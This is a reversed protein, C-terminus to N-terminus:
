RLARYPRVHKMALHNAVCAHAMWCFCAVILQELDSLLANGAIARNCFAQWSCFSSGLSARLTQSLWVPPFDTFSPVSSSRPNQKWSSDRLELRSWKGSVGRSGLSVINSCARWLQADLLSSWIRSTLATGAAQAPIGGRSFAGTMGGLVKSVPRIVGMTYPPQNQDIVCSWDSCRSLLLRPHYSSPMRGTSGSGNSGSISPGAPHHGSGDLPSSPVRGWSFLVRGTPRSTTQCWERVVSDARWHGVM